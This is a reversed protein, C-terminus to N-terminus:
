EFSQKDIVGLYEDFTQRDHLINKLYAMWEDVNHLANFKVCIEPMEVGAALILNKKQKKMAEFFMQHALMYRPYDTVLKGYTGLCPDGIKENVMAVSFLFKADYGVGGNDPILM